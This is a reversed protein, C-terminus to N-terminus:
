QYVIEKRKIIVPFKNIKREENIEIQKKSPQKKVPTEKAETFISKAVKTVDVEIGTPKKDVLKPLPKRVVPMKSGIIPKKSSEVIPKKIEKVTENNLTKFLSSVIKVVDVTQDEEPEPSYPTEIAHEPEVPPPINDISFKPQVTPLTDVVDLVPEPNIVEMERDLCIETPVIDAISIMRNIPVFIKEGFLVEITFKCLSGVVEKIPTVLASYNLGDQSSANFVLKAGEGLVVRVESPKTQTGAIEITFDIRSPENIVLNM